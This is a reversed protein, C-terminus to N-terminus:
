HHLAMLRDPLRPWSEATDCQSPFGLARGGVPITAPRHVRKASHISLQLEVDSTSSERAGEVEQHADSMVMIWTCCGGRESQYRRRKRRPFVGKRERRKEPHEADSTCAPSSLRLICCLVFCLDCCVMNWHIAFHSLVRSCYM